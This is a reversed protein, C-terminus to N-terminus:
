EDRSIHTWHGSSHEIRSKARITLLRRGYRHPADTNISAFVSGEHRRVETAPARSRARVGEAPTSLSIVPDVVLVVFGVLNSSVQVAEAAKTAEPCEGDLDDELLARLETHIDQIVGHMGEVRGSEPRFDERGLSALAKGQRGPMVQEDGKSASEIDDRSKSAPDQGIGVRKPRGEKLDRNVHIGNGERCDGAGGVQTDLTLKIDLGHSDPATDRGSNNRCSHRAAAVRALHFLNVKLLKLVCRWVETHVPSPALLLDRASALATGYQIDPQGDLNRADLFGGPASVGPSSSEPEIDGGAKPSQEIGGHSPSLGSLEQACNPTHSSPADMSSGRERIGQVLALFSCFTEWSTDVCFPVVLRSTGCVAGLKEQNGWPKQVSPTSAKPAWDLGEEQSTNIGLTALIRHRNNSATSSSGAVHPPGALAAARELSLEERVSRKSRVAQRVSREVATTFDRPTHAAALREFHRLLAVATEVRGVQSLLLQCSLGSPISVALKLGFMIVFGQITAGLSDYASHIVSEFGM